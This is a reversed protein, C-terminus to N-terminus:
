LHHEILILSNLHHAQAERATPEDKERQKAMGEGRSVCDLIPIPLSASHPRTSQFDPSKLDAQNKGGEAKFNATDRSWLVPSGSKKKYM